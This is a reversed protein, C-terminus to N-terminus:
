RGDRSPTAAAPTRGAWPYARELQGALRLLGAEDGYRGTFLLGIPLGDAASELPVSMAPNGTLNAIANWPNFSLDYEWWQRAGGYSKNLLGLPLPPQALTPTLWADYKEFFPAIARSAMHIRDVAEMLDVGGVKRGHEVLEWTTIELEEQAPVRGIMSRIAAADQANGVSWITLMPEVLVDDDYAPSDEVMHHGLDELRKATTEVARKCDPHVSIGLPARGSWAIRMPGPDVALQDLFPTDPPAPWHPDGPVPGATADLLAASDRVSWTVAHQVALGSLAEGPGPAFSIRGRTTKLGFLGCCSAPIRISGAGDSASAAPVLRAAVAAASGGSSGGATRGLDWPNHCAGFLEPETTSHNGFEPSTTRGLIVLGAGRLRTVLESDGTAVFDRLARSGDTRRVGKCSQGLDKVLYPAGSLPGPPLTGQARTRAEEFMTAAICNLDPNLAEIRSIAAEVLESPTVERRRVLDAQAMADLMWVETV